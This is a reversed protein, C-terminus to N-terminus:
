KILGAERYYKEAGPHLPVPLGKLANELKISKGASHAASLQDLNDFMGKTMKYVTDAPVGEHTVLFNQVFATAVDTNQGEYTKAPVVGAQYAPDRVKAVVEPPIPVIVIKVSTSLDRLASVGLGASQLTADLQRNKM